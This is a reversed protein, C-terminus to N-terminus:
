TLISMVWIFVKTDYGLLGTQSFHFGTSTNKVKSIVMPGHLIWVTYVIDTITYVRKTINYFVSIVMPGNQQLLAGTVAFVIRTM